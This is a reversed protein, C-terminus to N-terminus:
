IGLECCDVWRWLLYVADSDNSNLAQDSKGLGWSLQNAGLRHACHSSISSFSSVLGSAQTNSNTSTTAESQPFLMTAKFESKAPYPAAVPSCLAKDGVTSVSAYGGLRNSHMLSRNLITSTAIVSNKESSYSGAAPLNNGMCGGLWYASDDLPTGIGTTNAMCSATHAALDFMASISGIISWEPYLLNMLVPDKRSWVFSSISTELNDGRHFCRPTWGYINYLPFEWSHYHRFGTEYPKMSDGATMITTSSLTGSITAMATLAPKVTEGYVPSCNAKRVVEVMRTPLWMGRTYGYFFKGCKCTSQKTAGHPEPIDSGMMVNQGMIRLPFASDYCFQSVTQYGANSCSNTELTSGAQGLLGTAAGTAAKLQNGIALCALTLTLILYKIM